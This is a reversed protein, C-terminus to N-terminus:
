QIVIYMWVNIYIEYYCNFLVPNGYKMLMIEDM